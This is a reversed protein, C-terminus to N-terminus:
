LPMSRVVPLFASLQALRCRHELNTPGALFSETRQKL